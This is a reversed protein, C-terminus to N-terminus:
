IPITHKGVKARRIDGPFFDENELILKILASRKEEALHNLDVEMLFKHKSSKTFIPTEYLEGFEEDDDFVIGVTQARVVYKRLKNAHLLRLNNEPMRVYYSDPYKRKVVEVPGTWRAYLKNTSDPTLAVVLDGEKFEKYRRRLNYHHVYSKQQRNTILEAQQTVTELRTKLEQLYSASSKSLNYPVAVRGAWTSNLIALPGRPERGYM